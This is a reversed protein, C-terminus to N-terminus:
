DQKLTKILRVGVEECRDMGTQGMGNLNVSSKDSTCIRREIEPRDNTNNNDDDHVNTEKNPVGTATERDRTVREMYKKRRAYREVRENRVEDSGLSQLVFQM